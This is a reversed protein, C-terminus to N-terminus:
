GARRYRAPDARLVLTGRERALRGTIEVPEAVLDLIRDNVPAGDAAVLLMPEANPGSPIFLPPVGGSICRVACARHPKASGPNMVGLFCKSDVIEGVLTVVGLGVVESAAGAGVGANEVSGAEVEIMTRGARSVLKGELRVSRGDLGAVEAGAGHKGSAVLLYSSVSAGDSGPRAVELTPHPHERVIGEFRRTVLFEFTGGPSRKQGAALAAAVAAAAVITVVAAARARRAVGRPVTPRYGVYLEDDPTSM